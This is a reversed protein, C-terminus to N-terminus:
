MLGKFISVYPCIFSYYDILRLLFREGTHHLADVLPISAGIESTTLNPPVMEAQVKEMLQKSTPMSSLDMNRRLMDLIWFRLDDYKHNSIGLIKMVALCSMEFDEESKEGAKRTELKELVKEELGIDSQLMEVVNMVRARKSSKSTLEEFNKRKTGRIAEDDKVVLCGLDIEFAKLAAEENKIVTERSQNM